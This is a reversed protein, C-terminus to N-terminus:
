WARDELWTQYQFYELFSVVFFEVRVGIDSAFGDHGTSKRPRANHEIPTTLPAERRGKRTCSHYISSHLVWIKENLFSLTWMVEFIPMSRRSTCHVVGKATLRPSGELQMNYAIDQVIHILWPFSLIGVRAHLPWM